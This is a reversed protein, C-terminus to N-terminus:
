TTGNGFNPLLNRQINLLGLSIARNTLVVHIICMLYITTLDQKITTKTSIIEVPVCFM